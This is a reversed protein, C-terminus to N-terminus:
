SYTKKCEFFMRLANLQAVEFDVVVEVVIAKVKLERERAIEEIKELVRLYDTTTRNKSLFVFLYLVFPVKELLEGERNIANKDM